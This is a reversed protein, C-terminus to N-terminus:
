HFRVRSAHSQPAPRNFVAEHFCGSRDPRGVPVIFIHFSGINAAEFVYTDQRLPQSIDGTFVVSFRQYEEGTGPATAAAGNGALEIATLKVLTGLGTKDRAVFHTNLQAALTAVSVNELGAARLHSHPAFTAAPAFAATAALVSCNLLFERRTAM